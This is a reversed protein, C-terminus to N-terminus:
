NSSQKTRQNNWVRVMFLLTFMAEGFNQYEEMHGGFVLMAYVAFGAMLCVLVISFHAAAPFMRILTQSLISLKPQRNFFKLLYIAWMLSLAGAIQMTSSGNLFAGIMDNVNDFLM